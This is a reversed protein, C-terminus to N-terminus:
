NPANAFSKPAPSVIKLGRELVQLVSLGREAVGEVLFRFIGDRGMFGQPATIESIDFVTKPSSKPEGEGRGKDEGAGESKSTTQAFVAALATADYALTALRPPFEGYIAKYQRMFHLRERAAPAAFWGGVLAPERGIGSVDWQGTGLMRIKKPDIDYYPLLAAISQLKKGGDAILLAEFSVDGLTQLNELRKLAQKAVEDERVALLRREELLASRRADYNALTKIIPAFDTLYPAYFMKETVEAGLAEATQRLADAITVGYDNDPALVAFRRVGKKVAFTVVRQVQESPLFGMTFVGNGAVTRDNSFAIIKVGAARAAPSIAEVSGAFLPGLILSAGDGIALAAADAAGSATGHTDQPLLEFEKDAFHFLALQAANLMAQGLKAHQGSLPLLIAVRPVAPNLPPAAPASFRKENQPVTKPREPLMENPTPKVIIDKSSAKLRGSQSPNQTTLQAIQSSAQVSAQSNSLQQEVCAGLSPILLLSFIMAILFRGSSLASFFKRPFFKGYIM